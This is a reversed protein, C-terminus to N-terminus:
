EKIPCIKPKMLVTLFLPINFMKLDYLGANLVGGIKVPILTANQKMQEVMSEAMKMGHNDSDKEIEGRITELLHNVIDHIEMEKQYLTM